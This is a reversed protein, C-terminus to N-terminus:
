SVDKSCILLGLVRVELVTIAFAWMDSASSLPLKKDENQAIYLEPATWAAAAFLVTTYDSNKM